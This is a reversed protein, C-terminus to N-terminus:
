EVEREINIINRYTSLIRIRWGVVRVEYTEGKRLERQVDTSNWKLFLISDVNEFTEDEGHVLYRSDDGSRDVIREKDTVHLEIVESTSMYVTVYAGILTLLILSIIAFFRKESTKM